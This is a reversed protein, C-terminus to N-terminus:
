SVGGVPLYSRETKRLFAFFPRCYLLSNDKYTFNSWKRKNSTLNRTCGTRINTEGVVIGSYSCHSWRQGNRTRFFQLKLVTFGSSSARRTTAHGRGLPIFHFLIAHESNDNLSCNADLWNHCFFNARVLQDEPAGKSSERSTVKVGVSLTPQGSFNDQNRKVFM